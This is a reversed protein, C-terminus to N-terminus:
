GGSCAISAALAKQKKMIQGEPTAGYAKMEAITVGDSIKHIYCDCYAEVKSANLDNRARTVEAICKSKYVPNVVKQKYVEFQEPTMQEVEATMDRYESATEWDFGSQFLFYAGMAALIIYGIQGVLPIFAGMVAVLMASWWVLGFERMLAVVTLPLSFIFFISVILCGATGPTGAIISKLKEMTLWGLLRAPMGRPALPRARPALAPLHKGDSDTGYRILPWGM